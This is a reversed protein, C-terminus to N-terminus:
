TERRGTLADGLTIEDAYELDAGMPLGRALRTVRRGLPKLVGAMHNMTMEGPIDPPLALIIEKIEGQTLLRDVLEQIRLHEARVGEIPNLLGGTVHYRGQYKGTAEITAIDRSEAVVCLVTNDRRADTCIECEVRETHMFCSKCTQIRDGVNQIGRALYEREEKTLKLLAYVYRLATKPGVGPLKTLAQALTQIPEPFKRM